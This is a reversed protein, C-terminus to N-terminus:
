ETSMYLAVQTHSIRYQAPTMQYRKQFTSYFHTTNVYGVQEMIEQVQLDTNRLLECAKKFRAARILSSFNEGTYEKLVRIMHRESYHFQSALEKLTLCHFSEEITHMIQLLHEDPKGGDPSPLLVKRNPDRLLGVFLEMLYANLLFGGFPKESLFEERMKRVLSFLEESVAEQFCLYSEEGPTHLANAFFQHLISDRPMANLFANEFTASRILLNYVLCDESFVRIAHTTGPAMICFDGQSLTLTEASFLNECTGHLVCIVEFFSHTHIFPPAFRFSPMVMVDLDAPFYQEHLTEKVPYPGDGGEQLHQDLEPCVRGIEELTRALELHAEPHKDIVEKYWREDETLAPVEVKEELAM